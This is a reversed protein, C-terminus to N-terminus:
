QRQNRAQACHHRVIRGPPNPLHGLRQPPRQPTIPAPAPQADFVYRGFARRQHAKTLARRMKEGVEFAKAQLERRLQTLEWFLHAANVSDPLLLPDRGLTEILVATEKTMHLSGSLRVGKLPQLPAYKARIQMLGPMEEEAMRIRKRGLAALGMDAVKYDTFNSKLSAVKANM